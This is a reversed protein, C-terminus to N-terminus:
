AKSYGYFAFGSTFRMPLRKVILWAILCTLIKDALNQVLNAIAVSQVLEQGVALLYATAFDTGAGTVGGFMYVIIPVAVITSIVGIVAGAAIFAYKGIPNGFLRDDTERGDDVADCAKIESPDNERAVDGKPM